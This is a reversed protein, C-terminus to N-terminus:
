REEDRTRSGGASARSSSDGFIADWLQRTARLSEFEITPEPLRGRVVATVLEDRLSEFVDSLGPVRKRQRSSVRLDLELNRWNMSGIGRVVISGGRGAQLELLDVMAQSGSVHFEVDGTDIREGMPLTLSSLELLPTLGTGALLDGDRLELSGRGRVSRPQGLVGAIDIVGDVRGSGSVQNRILGSLPIGTLTLNWEYTQDDDEESSPDRLIGEGVVMGEGLRAQ